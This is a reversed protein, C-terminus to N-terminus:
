RAITEIETGPYIMTPQFSCSSKRKELRLILELTQQVDERSEGPHSFMFYPQVIIGLEICRECFALVAATSINKSITSLVRSSGSEVGIVLAVCGAAKMIDLLELPINVRSECWWKIKLDRQIIEQCVARVHKPNATFTLDLFNIADVRLKEKLLQIEDVVKQASRLRYKMGAKACFICKYPCGRSSIVSTAPVPEPYGFLYEPYQEWTFDTYVPLADLDEFLPQDPNHIVGNGERYSIGKVQQLEHGSGIADLLEVITVEGEGRVVVDIEPVKKLTDEPCYMFHVGGVVIRSNPRLARLHKAIKIAEFRTFTTATIGYVDSNSNQFVEQLPKNRLDGSELDM